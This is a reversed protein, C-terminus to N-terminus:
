RRLWKDQRRLVSRLADDVPGPCCAAVAGEDTLLTGSEPEFRLVWVGGGERQCSALRAGFLWRRPPDLPLQRVLQVDELALRAEVDGVRVVYFGLMPRGKRDRRLVDDFLVTRGRYDEFKEHWEEDNRHQMAQQLIEELSDNLLHALLDSQRQLQNLLFYEERSLASPNRDRQAVAANLEKLAIRFTGERLARQGSEIRFHITAQPTETSTMTTPRRWYPGVVLLIVGVAALGGM